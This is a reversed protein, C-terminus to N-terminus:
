LYELNHQNKLLYRLMSFILRFKKHNFVKKLDKFNEKISNILEIFKKSLFLRNFILVLDQIEKTFIHFHSSFRSNRYYFYRESLVM